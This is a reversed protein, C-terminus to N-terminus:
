SVNCSYYIHTIDDNMSNCFNCHPSDVKGSRWLIRKRQLCRHILKLQFNKLINNSSFYIHKYIKNWLAPDFNVDTFEAPWSGQSTPVGTYTKNIILNYSKKCSKNCHILNEYSVTEIPKSANTDASLIRKWPIASLLSNYEMINFVCDFKTCLTLFVCNNKMIDQLRVIGKEFM